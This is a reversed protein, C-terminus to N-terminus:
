RTAFLHSIGPPPLLPLPQVCHIPMDLQITHLEQPPANWQRTSCSFNCPAAVVPRKHWRQEMRLLMRAGRSTPPPFVAFTSCVVLNGPNKQQTNGLLLSLSLVVACQIGAEVSQCKQHLHGRTHLQANHAPVARHRRRLLAHGRLRASLLASICLKVLPELDFHVIREM